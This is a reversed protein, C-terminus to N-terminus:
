THYSGVMDRIPRFGIGTGCPTLTATSVPATRTSPGLPLSEWVRGDPMETFASAATNVTSRLESLRFTRASCPSLRESMALM